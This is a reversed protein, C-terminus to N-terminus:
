SLIKVLVFSCLSFLLVFANGKINYAGGNCGDTSCVCLRGGSIPERMCGTGTNIMCQRKVDGVGTVNACANLLIGCNEPEKGKCDDGTCQYCKIALGEGVLAVLVLVALLNNM